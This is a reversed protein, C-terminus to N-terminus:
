EVIDNGTGGQIQMFRQVHIFQRPINQFTYIGWRSDAASGLWGVLDGEM